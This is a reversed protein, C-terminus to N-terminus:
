RGLSMLLLVVALLCLAIIRPSIIKDLERNTSNPKTKM